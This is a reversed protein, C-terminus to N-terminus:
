VSNAQECVIAVIEDYAVLFRLIGCVVESDAKKGKALWIIYGKAYPEISVESKGQVIEMRPFGVKQQLDGAQECLAGKTLIPYISEIEGLFGEKTLWLITSGGLEFPIAEDTMLSTVINYTKVDNVIIGEMNHIELIKIM